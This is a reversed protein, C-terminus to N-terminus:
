FTRVLEWATGVCAMALSFDLGALDKAKGRSTKKQKGWEVGLAPCLREKAEAFLNQVEGLTNAHKTRRLLLQSNCLQREWFSTLEGFAHGQPEGGGAQLQHKM